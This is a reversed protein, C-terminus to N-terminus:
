MLRQWENIRGTLKPLEEDFWQIKYHFHTTSVSSTEFAVIVSVPRGLVTAAISSFPIISIIRLHKVSYNIESERVFSYKIENLDFFSFGCDFIFLNWADVLSSSIPIVSYTVGEGPNVPM